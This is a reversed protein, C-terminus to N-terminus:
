LNSITPPPLWDELRDRLLQALTRRALTFHATATMGKSLEGRHGSPLLLQQDLLTCKVLFTLRGNADTIVDQGIERVQARVLGWRTHTFADMRMTVPIGERILGIDQPSVSIAVELAGTPSIKVIEQAPGVFSGPLLGVTQMLHGATPATIVLHRSRQHLSNNKLRLTRLERENRTLEQTWLHRRREKLQTQENVALEHDFRYREIEMKAITGTTFLSEQRDLQKRAHTVKLEAQDWQHRFDQYDRQYLATQLKPYVNASLATILQKLDAITSQHEQIGDSLHKTEATLESADLILLTDGAEVELNDRLHAFLVRGETPSLISVPRQATQLIARGESGVDISIFPLAVSILLLVAIMTLYVPYGRRYHRSYLGEITQTPNRSPFSTNPM